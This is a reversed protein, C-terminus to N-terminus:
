KVQEKFFTLMKSYMEKSVAEYAKANVVNVKELPDNQYDYLETAYVKNAVFPHKSTFDNMWIVFRYKDTRLAYGMIKGNEYGLQKFVTSKLKRPYQSVAFTKITAKKNELLPM